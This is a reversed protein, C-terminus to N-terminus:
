GTATPMTPSAFPVSPSNCAASRAHPAFGTAPRDAAIALPLAAQCCSSAVSCRLGPLGIWGARRSLSIELTAGASVIKTVSTPQFLFPAPCCSTARWGRVNMVLPPMAVM